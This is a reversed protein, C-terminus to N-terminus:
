VPSGDRLTLTRAEHRRGRVRRRLSSHGRSHGTAERRGRRIRIEGRRSCGRERHRLIRSERGLLLKRVCLSRRTRIIRRMVTSSRGRIGRLWNGALIRLRDRILIRMDIGINSISGLCSGDLRISGRWLLLKCLGLLLEIFPGTLRLRSRVRVPIASFRLKYVLLMWWWRLGLGLMMLRLRLMLLQLGLVSMAVTMLLLGLLQHLNCRAASSASRM